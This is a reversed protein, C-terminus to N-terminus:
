LALILLLADGFNSTAIIAAKTKPVAFNIFNFGGNLLEDAILGTMM